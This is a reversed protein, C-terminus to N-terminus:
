YTIWNAGADYSVFVRGTNDMELRFDAVGVINIACDNAGCAVSDSGDATIVFDVPGPNTFRASAHDVAAVSFAANSFFQAVQVDIDVGNAAGTVAGTALNIDAKAPIDNDIDGTNVDYHTSNNIYYDRMAQRIMSLTAVAESAKARLTHRTYNPIAIAALLAIIFVVILIEVLTFGSKIKFKHFRNIM